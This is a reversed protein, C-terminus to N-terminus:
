GAARIWASPADATATAAHYVTQLTRKWLETICLPLRPTLSSVEPFPKMVSIGVGEKECHRYVEAREDVGGHAYDGRGYDYGPNISFMLM